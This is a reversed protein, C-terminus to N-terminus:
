ARLALILPQFPLRSGSEHAGSPLVDAGQASAWALFENALRTKGIGPEGRLTVVQPQGSAASEYAAALARQEAARGAFLSELFTVPTDLPYPPIPRQDPVLQARIRAALAETTPDPEVHLEAALLARCASYTELAQGREGAAFHARMKRRYAVENLVDLA